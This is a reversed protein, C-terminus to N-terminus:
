TERTQGDAKRAFLLGSQGLLYGLQARSSSNLHDAARKIHTAVTRTSVGLRSGIAQDTHGEVMLRLIARRTQAGFAPSHWRRTDAGVPEARDWAYDFANALHRVTEPHRISLAATQHGRVTPIFATGHDFVSIPDFVEALTRVDAGAASIKEIYALTPGHSRVTHQYLVRLRVGRECLELDRPLAETLLDEGLGGGPRATMVEGSCAGAAKELSIGIADEGLILSVASDAERSIRQYAAQARVFAARISHLQREKDRIDREVPHALLAAATDPPVPVLTDPEAPLPRLLGLSLLCPPADAARATGRVLAWRYFAEGAGCMEVPSDPSAGAGGATPDTCM